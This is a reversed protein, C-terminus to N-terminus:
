YSISPSLYVEGAPTRMRAMEGSGRERATRTSLTIMKKFLTKQMGTGDRM